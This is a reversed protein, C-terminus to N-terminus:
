LWLQDMGTKLQFCDLYDNPIHPIYNNCVSHVLRKLVYTKIGRSHVNLISNRPLHMNVKILIQYCKGLPITGVYMEVSLSFELQEVEECCKIHTKIRKSM